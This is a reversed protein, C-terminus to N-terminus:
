HNQKILSKYKDRFHAIKPSIVLSCYPELPNNSYYNKHYDEAPYFTTLKKIETIIPKSYNPQHSSISQTIIPLQTEKTYLIISRYQTGVDEGQRNLSTPDHIDLFVDLIIDLSIISPDFDVKIVEAHGTHGECVLSYTPNTTVGGSYGSVVSTVGSLQTFIAETCWFCGGGLVISEKNVLSSNKQM